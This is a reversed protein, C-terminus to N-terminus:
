LLGKYSLNIICMMTVFIFIVKAYDIYNVKYNYKLDTNISLIICLIFLSILIINILLM